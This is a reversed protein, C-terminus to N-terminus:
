VKSPPVPCPAACSTARCGGPLSCEQPGALHLAFPPHAAVPAMRCCHSCPPRLWPSHPSPYPPSADRPAASWSSLPKSAALAHITLLTPSPLKHIVPKRKKGEARTLNNLNTGLIM